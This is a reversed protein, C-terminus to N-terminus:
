QGGTLEAVVGNLLIEVEDEDRAFGYAYNDPRVLAFRAGTLCTEFWRAYEELYRAEPILLVAQLRGEAMAQLHHSQQLAILEWGVGQRAEAMLSGRKLALCGGGRQADFFGGKPLDPEFRPESTEGRELFRQRMGSHIADASAEDFQCIPTGMRISTEIIFATGARRENDWSELLSRKARGTLIASLRWALGAADRFGTNAGQGIFPPMRHAADGILCVGNGDWYRDANVSTFHYVVAREIESNASHYGYPTLLDWVKNPKVMDQVTEGPLM